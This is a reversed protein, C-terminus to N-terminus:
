LRDQGPYGINGADLDDSTVLVHGEGDLFVCWPIGGPKQCYCKRLDSAGVM